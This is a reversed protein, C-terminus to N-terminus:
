EVEVVVDSSPTGIGCSSRARVRVYYTGTRVQTATYTTARGLDITLVDSQGKARGAELIHSARNYVSGSWSVVVTGSHNAAVHVDAPPPPPSACPFGARIPRLVAAPADVLTAASVRCVAIPWQRAWAGIPIDVGFCSRADPDHVVYVDRGRRRLLGTADEGGFMMMRGDFLETGSPLHIAGGSDRLLLPRRVYATAYPFDEFLSPRDDTVDDTVVLPLGDHPLDHGLARYMAVSEVRQPDTEPQAALFMTDAVIIAAVAGLGMWKLMPQRRVMVM